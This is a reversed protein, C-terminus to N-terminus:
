AIDEAQMDGVVGLLGLKEDSHDVDIDAKL